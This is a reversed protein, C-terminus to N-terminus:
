PNWLAGSQRFNHPKSGRKEESNTVTNLDGVVMGSESSPPPDVSLNIWFPYRQGADSPAHMSTFVVEPETSEFKIIGHFLHPEISYLRIADGSGELLPLNWRKEV